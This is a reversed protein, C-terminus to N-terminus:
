HFRGGQYPTGRLLCTSDLPVGRGPFERLIMKFHQDTLSFYYITFHPQPCLYHVSVSATESANYSFWELNKNVACCVVTLNSTLSHGVDFQEIRNWSATMYQLMNYIFLVACHLLFQTVLVKQGSNTVVTKLGTRRIHPFYSDIKQTTYPRMVSVTQICGTPTLIYCKSEEHPTLYVYIYYFIIKRMFNTLVVNLFM